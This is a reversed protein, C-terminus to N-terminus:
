AEEWFLDVYRTADLRDGLCEHVHTESTLPAGCTHCPPEVVEPSRPSEM